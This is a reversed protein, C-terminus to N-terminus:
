LVFSLNKFSPDAKQICVGSHSVEGSASDCGMFLHLQRKWLSDGLPLELGMRGPDQHDPLRGQQDRLRPGQARPTDQTM